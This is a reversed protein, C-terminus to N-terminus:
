YEKKDPIIEEIVLDDEIFLYRSGRYRYILNCDSFESELLREFEKTLMSIRVSSEPILISEVDYIM